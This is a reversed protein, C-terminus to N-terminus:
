CQIKIYFVVNPHGFPYSKRELPPFSPHETESSLRPSFFLSIFKVEEFTNHNPQQKAKPNLAMSLLPLLLQEWSKKALTGMPLINKSLKKEFPYGILLDFDLIAYIHFDL